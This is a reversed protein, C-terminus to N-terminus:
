TNGANYIYVQSPTSVTDSVVALKGDNSVTLVKGCLSVNCPISSSSAVRVSNSTSVDVLMLGQDSGIYLRPASVHNFMMSNPTRPLGIISPGIPTTGPTVSFLASSCGLQNKCDTTAAWATYTPATSSSSRTVEVSITGYGNTVNPPQCKPAANAPYDSAYIPLSSVLVGSPTAGPLGINCSPPTCSATLTAGG